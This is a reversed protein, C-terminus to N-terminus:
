TKKPIFLSVSFIKSKQCLYEQFLWLITSYFKSKVFKNSESKNSLYLHLHRWVWNCVRFVFRDHRLSLQFFLLLLLVRSFTLDLLISPHPWFFIRSILIKNSLEKITEPTGSVILSNNFSIVFKVIFHNVTIKSLNLPSM